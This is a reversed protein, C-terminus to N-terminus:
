VGKPASKNFFNKFINRSGWHNAQSPIEQHNPGTRFVRGLDILWIGQLEKEGELSPSPSKDAV